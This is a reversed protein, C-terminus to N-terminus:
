PQQEQRLQAVLEDIGREIVEWHRQWQEFDQRTEDPARESSAEASHQQRASLRGQKARRFQALVGALNFM